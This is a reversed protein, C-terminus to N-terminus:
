QWPNINRGPQTVSAIAEARGAWIIDVLSHHAADLSGGPSNCHVNIFYALRWSDYSDSAVTGEISALSQEDRYQQDLSQHTKHSDVMDKKIRTLAELDSSWGTNWSFVLDVAWDYLHNDDVGAVGSLDYVDQNLRNLAGHVRANYNWAPILESLPAGENELRMVRADSNAVERTLQETDSALTDRAQYIGARLAVVDRIINPVPQTDQKELRYGQLLDKFEHGLVHWTGDGSLLVKSELEEAKPRV